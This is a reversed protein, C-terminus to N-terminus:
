KPKTEKKQNKITESYRRFKRSLVANRAANSGASPIPRLPTRGYPSAEGKCIIVFRLFRKCKIM